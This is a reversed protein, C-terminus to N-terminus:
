LVLCESPGFRPRQPLTGSLPSGPQPIGEADEREEEWLHGGRWILGLKQILLFPSVHPFLCKSCPCPYNPLRTARDLIFDTSLGRRSASRVRSAAIQVEGDKLPVETYFQPHLCWWWWCEAGSLCVQFIFFLYSGLAGKLSM